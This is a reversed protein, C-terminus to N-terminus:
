LPDDTLRVGLGEALRNYYAFLAIVQVADHIARDDFGEARLADLDAESAAAPRLTLQHAFHVLAADPPSLPATLPDKM